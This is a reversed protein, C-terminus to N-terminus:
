REDVVVGLREGLWAAVLRRHCFARGAALDAKREWCLLVPEAGGALAVLDDHTRRPDLADLQSAYRRRYETEDVSNFWPGPALTRFVRFGAKTGRPPFRAISIRGPGDYEFFSATKM